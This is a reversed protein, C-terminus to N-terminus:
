NQIKWVLFFFKKPEKTLALNLGTSFRVEGPVLQDMAEFKLQERCQNACLLTQPQEVKGAVYLIYSLHGRYYQTMTQNRGHWCAGVVLRTKQFKM